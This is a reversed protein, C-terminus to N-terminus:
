SAAGQAKEMAKRDRANRAAVEGTLVEHVYEFIAMPRYQQITDGNANPKEKKIPLPFGERKWDFPHTMQVTTGGLLSRVAYNALRDLEFMEKDSITNM